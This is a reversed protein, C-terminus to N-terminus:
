KEQGQWYWHWPEARLNSLSDKPFSEAFGWKSAHNKLWNYTDTNVFSAESPVLDVARGTEHQSYGPPAVFRLVRIFSEGKAMRRKIIRTQFSSSRYGSDVIIQISDQSAEQAMEVLANRAERNLYIHYDEFCFEDPLRVLTAPDAIITSDLHQGCWQQPVAYEVSDITVTENCSAVLILLGFLASIM